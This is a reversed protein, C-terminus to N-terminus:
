SLRALPEAANLKTESAAYHRAIQEGTAIWADGIGRVRAIFERFIGLRM